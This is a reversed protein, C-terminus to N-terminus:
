NIKNLSKLYVSIKVKLWLTRIKALLSTLWQLALHSNAIRKSVEDFQLKRDAELNIFRYTIENLSTKIASVAWSM